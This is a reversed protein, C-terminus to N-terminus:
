RLFQYAKVFGWVKFGMEPINQTGPSHGLPELIPHTDALFRRYTCLRCPGFAPLTSDTHTIARTQAHTALLESQGYPMTKEAWLAQICEALGGLKTTGPQESIGHVDWPLRHLRLYRCWDDIM